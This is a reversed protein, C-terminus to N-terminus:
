RLDGWPDQPTGPTDRQGDDAPIPLGQGTGRQAAEMLERLAPSIYGKPAVAGKGMVNVPELRFLSYDSM